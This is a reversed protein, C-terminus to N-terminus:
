SGNIREALSQAEGIFDHLDGTFAKHSGRNCDQFVDGMRRGWKANIHGLVKGGKQQDDFLALSAKITLRAAQELQVEVHDHKEGRGINRRRVVAACAAELGSRCLGAVVRRAIDGALKEDKVFARADMFYQRVPDLTERVHVVSRIGRTVELM